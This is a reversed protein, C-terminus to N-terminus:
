KNEKSYFAQLKNIVHMINNDIYTENRSWLGKTSRINLGVGSSTKRTQFVYKGDDLKEDENIHLYDNKYEDLEDLDVYDAYVINTFFSEIGRNATSGKVAIALKSRGKIDKAMEVHCIFIIPKNCNAVGNQFLNLIYDRYKDWIQYKDEATRKAYMEQMDLASTLTDIIIGKCKANAAAQQVYTALKAPSKIVVENFKHNFPLPKNTECNLYLWDPQNPIYELSASKGNGALGVVAVILNNAM